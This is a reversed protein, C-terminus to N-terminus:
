PNPTFSPVTTSSSTGVANVSRLRVQSYSTGNTLGTIEVINGAVPLALNSWTTGNNLSFEYRLLASGGTSTAASLTLAVKQNGPLLSIILPADPSTAPATPTGSFLESRDGAGINNIARLRLASYTVGNTLGSITIPSTGDAPSLARWNIGGDLSFEYNSISVGFDSGPTFAVVLQKDGPTVTLITPATAVRSPTGSVTASAAGNGITSVARIKISTYLARNTLGSIVVPSTLYNTSFQQFNVGGDLSYEYRLITAGNASAPTFSIKLQGDGPTVSLNTPASPVAVLPTGSLTSSESGKGNANVARIKIQNYNTGGTLGTIVAPSSFINPTFANWTSGNNLTYEYGTIPSGGNFGPTFNITIQGFGSVVSLNTPASPITNVPTGNASLSALGNGLSSVARVQVSYNTNNTLNPIIIPSFATNANIWSLSNNLQYEYRIVYNTASSNIPPTFTISLTRDSPIVFLNTPAQLITPTATPSPTPSPRVAGTVWKFTVVVKRAESGNSNVRGNTNKTFTATLDLEKLDAIVNNVRKTAYSRDLATAGKSRTFGVVNVMVSTGSSAAIQDVIDSLKFYNSASVTASKSSFYISVSKTNNAAYAPPTLGGILLAAIVFLVQILRSYGTNVESAKKSTLVLNM